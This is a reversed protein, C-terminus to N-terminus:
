RIQKKLAECENTLRDVRRQFDIMKSNEKVIFELRSDIPELKLKISDVNAKSTQRREDIEAHQRRKQNLMNRYT